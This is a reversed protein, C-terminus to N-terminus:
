PLAGKYGFLDENFYIYMIPFSNHQIEDICLEDSTLLIHILHCFYYQKFFQSRQLDCSLARFFVPCWVGCMVAGGDNTLVIHNIVGIIGSDEPFFTCWWVFAGEGIRGFFEFTEM